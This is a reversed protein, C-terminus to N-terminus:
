GHVPTRAHLVARAQLGGGPRPFADFGATLAGVIFLGRGTEVLMRARGRDLVALVPQDGTADLVVECSGPAHRVVNAILEGTVTEADGADAESAGLEALAAGVGASAALAAARDGTDFTWRRRSAKRPDAGFAVTLLAVDDTAGDGRLVTTAIRHAADVDVNRARDALADRLRAEGELVDRTAEILGDTFLVLLSGPEIAADATESDGKRRVGLPLGPARLERVDGDPGRLRPAPHGASAYRLCRELPDYVGVFATVTLDPSADRLTRDAADLVALPDASIQAAGRIAQRVAVMATAAALGSGAVDGISMVIRGDLLRFADYWDGGVEAERRGARYVADFGLGPVRPLAAPLSAEVFASSVRNADDVRAELEERARKQADINTCTGFWRLITVGDDAFLPTARALFWAYGNAGDRLRVEVEFTGSPGDGTRWADRVAEADAPHVAAEIGGVELARRELGTYALWAENFYEGTGDSRYTWVLQPIAEAITALDRDRAVARERSLTATESVHSAILVDEYHEVIALVTIFTAGLLMADLFVDLTFADHRLVVGLVVLLPAAVFAIAISARLGIARGLLVLPVIEAYAVHAFPFVALAAAIGLALAVPIAIRRM